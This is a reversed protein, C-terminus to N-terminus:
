DFWVRFGCMLFKSLLFINTGQLMHVSKGAKEILRQEDLAGLPAAGSFAVRVPDLDERKVM